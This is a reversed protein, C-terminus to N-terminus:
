GLLTFNFNIFGVVRVPLGDVLTPRFKWRRAADMAAQRLMMPGSTSQVTSVAGTPDVEIYVTVIGTIRAGKATAPYSPNVRQMAKEVLSGVNVAKSDQPKVSGGAETHAAAVAPQQPQVNRKETVANITASDKTAIASSNTRSPSANVTENSAPSSSNSHAPIPRPNKITGSVPTMRAEEATLKQRAFAMERQWQQREQTNRADTTRLSSVDELLAAAAATIQADETTLQRAQDAIKELLARLRDLDNVADSPLDKGTVNIGFSRYREIHERAGNLAQGALAFYAETASASQTARATYIEELLTQARMYNGEELCIGMLMLRAVDRVSDDTTTKRIADFENAAAALNHAAALARARALRTRMDAADTPSQASIGTVTLVTAVAFILLKVRNLGLPNRIWKEKM